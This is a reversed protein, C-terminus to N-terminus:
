DSPTYVYTPGLEERDATNSDTTLMRSFSWPPCQYHFVFLLMEAVAAMLLRVYIRVFQEDEALGPFRFRRSTLAGAGPEKAGGARFAVPASAPAMVGLQALFVRGPAVLPHSGGM